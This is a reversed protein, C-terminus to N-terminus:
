GSSSRGRLAEIELFVDKVQPHVDRIRREVADLAGFLEDTSIEPHFRLDMNLLVHHPGIQMTRLKPVDRVCPEDMAIARISRILDPDASEGMILSRTEYVLLTAVAILIAGIVMSAIGDFRPADFTVALIVGCFAAVIGLLAATDEAVVVFVTPDKSRQFTRFVGEGPKRAKLMSRVAIVWSTGEALFAIGLVAYSWIPQEIPEPHMFHVIGEYFSLGGGIAFLLMAVLLGWFYIEQSYGFPHRDDPPKKSRRVGLLLLGQNGTDVVSHIGESLMSSSGTFFAAVFKAIAILFNAVLAGYVVIPQENSGGAM